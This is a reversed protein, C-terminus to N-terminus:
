FYYKLAFNIVRQGTKNMPKGTTLTNTNTASWSGDSSNFFKLNADQIGGLGFQPNPHNLFNVASLRFQVRQRETITFDKFIALDSDFYGPVRIYPWNLDGQMGYAPPGFCNPNFSLGSAHHRPNCTIVPVLANYATTGFWTSPNVANSQLGNPLTFWQSQPLGGPWQANLNGGTNPQLPAGASYTTYGSLHWGDLMSSLFRKDRFAKPLNWVYSANFIHTHDYALVGYSNKFNFPDQLIGSSAGNDSNWDRTGLVKSFTYNMLFVVPGSQKQWAAQLSNYSAYGEHSYLFVDSYNQLPRFDQANCSTIGSGTPAGGSCLQHTIPDPLFMGGPNINNLNHYNGNSGTTFTNQTKNAVYSVEFVSRWPGSQSVTVNWDMTRPTKNDGRQLVGIKGGNEYAAGPPSFQSLNGYGTFSTPTTYNVTGVPGDCANNGCVETSIQYRFVAFGARFVTKGTGFV